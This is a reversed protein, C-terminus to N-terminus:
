EGGDSRGLVPVAGKLFVKGAIGAAGMVTFAVDRGLAVPGAGTELAGVARSGVMLAATAPQRAAEYALLAEAVSGHVLTPAPPMNVVM